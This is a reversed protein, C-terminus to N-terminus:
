SGVSKLRALQEARWRGYGGTEARVGGTVMSGEAAGAKRPEGRGEGKPAAGDRGGVHRLGARAGTHAASPGGDGDRRRRGFRLADAKSFM